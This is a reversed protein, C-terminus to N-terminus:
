DKTQEAWYNFSKEGTSDDKHFYVCCKTISKTETGSVLILYPLAASFVITKKSSSNWEEIDKNYTMVTIKYTNKFVFKAHLMLPSIRAQENDLCFIPTYDDYKNISIVGHYAKGNTIDREVNANKWDLMTDSLLSIEDNENQSSIEDLDIVMGVKGDIETYYEGNEVWCDYQGVRVTERAEAVDEAAEAQVTAATGLMTSVALVLAMIKRKLM